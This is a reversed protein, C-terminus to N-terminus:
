SLIAQTKAWWVKAWQVTEMVHNVLDEVQFVGDEIKKELAKGASGLNLKVKFATMVETREQKDLEGAQKLLKDTNLTAIQAAEDALQFLMLMGRKNAVGYGVNFLEGAVDAIKLLESVGEKGGM